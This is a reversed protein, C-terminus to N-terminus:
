LVNCKFLTYSYMVGIGYSLRSLSCSYGAAKLTNLDEYISSELEFKLFLAHFIGFPNHAVFQSFYRFFIKFNM